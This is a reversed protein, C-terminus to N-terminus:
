HMKKKDELIKIDKNIEIIIKALNKKDDEINKKVKNINEIIQNYDGDRLNLENIHKNFQEKINEIQKSYNKDSIEKTLKSVDNYEKISIILNIASAIVVIGTFINSNFITSLQQKFSLTESKLDSLNFTMEARGSGLVRTSNDIYDFDLIFQNNALWTIINEDHHNMYEMVDKAIKKADNKDTIYGLIQRMLYQQQKMSKISSFVDKIITPIALSLFSKALQFNTDKDIKEYQKQAEVEADKKINKFSNKVKAIEKYCKKFQSYKENLENKITDEYILTGFTKKVQDKFENKIKDPWQSYHVSNIELFNILQQEDCIYDNIDEICIYNQWLPKLYQYYEENEYWKLIIAEFNDFKRILNKFSGLNKVPYTINKGNDEYGHLLNEIQRSNFKKIQPIWRKFEYVDNQLLFKIINRAAKENFSKKKLLLLIIATLLVILIAIIIQIM